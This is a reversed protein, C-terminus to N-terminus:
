IEQICTNKPSERLSNIQEQIDEGDTQVVELWTNKM